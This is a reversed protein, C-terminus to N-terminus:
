LETARNIAEATLLASAWLTSIVAMSSSFMLIIENGVLEGLLIGVFGALLTVVVLSRNRERLKRGIVALPLGVYFAGFMFSATLGTIIIGLEANWSFPAYLDSALSLFNMLPYLVDRVAGRLIPNGQVHNAIFPSFSYYWANFALMFASGVKSKALQGDRFERLAQVESSLYSGFAATAVLCQSTPPASTTSNTIMLIVDTTHSVSGDSAEISVIGPGTVAHANVSITVSASANASVPINLQSPNFDSLTVGPPVSEPYFHVSGQYDAISTGTVTVTGSGTRPVTLYPPTAVLSYDPQFGSLRVIENNAPETTWVNGGSDVVVDRPLAAGIAYESYPYEANGTITSTEPRVTHVSPSVLTTQPALTVPTGGSPSTVASISVLSGETPNSLVAIGGNGAQTSQEAVWPQQTIPNIDIGAPDAGATPIQWEEIISGGRLVGVYNNYSTANILGQTYWVSGSSDVAVSAGIALGHAPLPWMTYQQSARDWRILASFGAFWVTNSLAYVGFAGGGAAAPFQDEYLTVNYTAPDYIFEGNLNQTTETFWVRAEPGSTPEVSISAVGTGSRPLSYERFIGLQPWFAFVKDSGFETGWLVMYGSITTFALGYPNAGSTPITWEQFAGSAPDLHGVKGGYYELFWCCEGAGGLALAWPGSSPTPVTWETMSASTQSAKITSLSVLGFLPTIATLLIILISVTVLTRGLYFM